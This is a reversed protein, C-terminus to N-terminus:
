GLCWSRRILILKPVNDDIYVGLDALEAKTSISPLNTRVYDAVSKMDMLNDKVEQANVDLGSLGSVVLALDIKDLFGKLTNYYGLANLLKRKVMEKLEDLTADRFSGDEERKQLKDGTEADIERAQYSAVDVLDNMINVFRILDQAIQIEYRTAM